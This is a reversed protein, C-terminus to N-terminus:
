SNTNRYCINRTDINSLVGILHNILSQQILPIGSSRDMFEYRSGELMRALMLFTCNVQIVLLIVMFPPMPAFIVRSYILCLSRILGVTFMFTAILLKNMDVLTLRNLKSFLPITHANHASTTILRIARKQLLVLPQLRTTKNNAWVINCYNLYPLVLTDYLSLM